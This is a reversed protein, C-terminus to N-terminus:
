AIAEGTNNDITVTVGDWTVDTRGATANPQWSLVKTANPCDQGNFKIVNGLVGYVCFFLCNMQACTTRGNRVQAAVFSEVTGGKFDNIAFLAFDTLNTFVGFDAMVKNEQVLNDVSLLGFNTLQTFQLFDSIKVAEKSDTLRLTRLATLVLLETPRGSWKRINLIELGESYKFEEINLVNLKVNSQYRFDDYQKLNYKEVEFTDGLGSVRLFANTGSQVVITNYGVDVGDGGVFNHNLAKAEVTKGDVPTILFFVGDAPTYPGIKTDIIGLKPLNDNDVTGKLKTVLCNGM